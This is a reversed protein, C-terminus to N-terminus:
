REEVDLDLPVGLHPARTLLVAVVGAALTGVLAWLLGVALGTLPVVIAWSGALQELFPGQDGFPLLQQTVGLTFGLQRQWDVFTGALWTLGAGTLCGVFVGPVFGAVAGVAMSWRVSIGVLKVGLRRDGMRRERPRSSPVLAREPAPGREPPTGPVSM